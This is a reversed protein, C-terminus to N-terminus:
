AAKPEGLASHVAVWRMAGILREVDAPTVDHWVREADQRAALVLRGDRDRWEDDEPFAGGDEPAWVRLFGGADEERVEFVMNNSGGYADAVRGSPLDVRLLRSSVRLEALRHYWRAMRQWQEKPVTLETPTTLPDLAHTDSAAAREADDEMVELILRSGRERLYEDWTWVSSRSVYEQELRAALSTVRDTPIHLPLTAAVFRGADVLRLAYVEGAFVGAGGEFGHCAFSADDHIRRLRVGPDLDEVIDYLQWTSGPLSRVVPRIEVPLKHQNLAACEALTRGAPGTTHIARHELWYPAFPGDTDTHEGAGDKLMALLMDFSRRWTQYAPRALFPPGDPVIHHPARQTKPETEQTSGM